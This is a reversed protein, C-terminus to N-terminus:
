RCYKIVHVYKLLIKGFRLGRANALTGIGVRTFLTSVNMEVCVHM